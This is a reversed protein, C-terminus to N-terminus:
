RPTLAAQRVPVDISLRGAKAFNLTLKFHEGLKLKQKLGLLMLHATSPQFETVSQAALSRNHLKRMRMIMGDMKMEHLEVSQAISSEAGLLIDSQMSKNKISFFVAGNAATTPRAWIDVIDLGSAASAHLPVSLFALTLIMSALRLPMHKMKRNRWLGAM